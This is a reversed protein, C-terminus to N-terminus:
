EEAQPLGQPQPHFLLYPKNGMLAGPARSSGRLQPCPTVPGAAQRWEGALSQLFPSASLQSLRSSHEGDHDLAEEQEADHPGVRPSAIGPGPGWLILNDPGATVGAQLSKPGAPHPPLCNQWRHGRGRDTGHLGWLGLRGGLHCGCTGVHGGAADGGLPQQLGAQGLSPPGPCGNPVALVPRPDPPCLGWFSWHPVLSKM